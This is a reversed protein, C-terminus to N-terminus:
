RAMRGERLVEQVKEQSYQDSSTPVHAYKGMASQRPSPPKQRTSVPPEALERDLLHRVIESPSVGRRRAERELRAETEPQIEITLTM